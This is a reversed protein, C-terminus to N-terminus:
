GESVDSGTRFFAFIMTAAFISSGVYASNTSMFHTMLFLNPWDDFYNTAMDFAFHLRTFSGALSREQIEYLLILRKDDTSVWIRHRRDYIAGVADARIRM